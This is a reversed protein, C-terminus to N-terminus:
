SGRAAWAAGRELLAGGLGLRELGGLAGRGAPRLTGARTSRQNASDLKWWRSNASRRRSTSSLSFCPSVMEATSGVSLSAAVMPGMTRAARRSSISFTGSM